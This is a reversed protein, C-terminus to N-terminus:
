GSKSDGHDAFPPLRLAVRLPDLLDAYRPGRATDTRLPERVQTASPTFVDRRNEHFRLCCPDWPLGCFELLRGIGAEPNALLKEYDHEYVNDPYQARWFRISRDYDRWYSALDTFTDTYDHHNRYQRYCSFCTELPDRRCCVVRASPLMAVIAGIFMWNNPLKDTFIPRRQRWRETRQLYRRGLREWDAAQAAPAWGPFPANRRRSEEVLVSKLDSLEGTGEVQPHSALIQEVLTSGSRPLGVIFIVERGLEHVDTGTPTPTFAALLESVTDSLEKANWTQRHRSIAKAQELAALSDAYHGTDELAKALAFGTAVKDDNSAQPAALAERMHEIDTDTLRTTKLDALGRWAFGTWPQDHLIRRYEKAAAEAHGRNRLTDALRTRAATHDPELEVARQFAAIAEDHRVYRTLMIGLNYWAIALDPQLECARHLAGVAADFDGANGLVTAMTNHYAADHPCLALAQHMTALAERRMGRMDYLIAQLRLVEPHGAHSKALLALNQEAREAHGAQLAQAAAQLRALSTPDLMQQRVTM